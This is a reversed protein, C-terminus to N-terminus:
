ALHTSIGAPAFVAVDRWLDAVARVILAFLTLLVVVSLQIPTFAATPVLFALFLAYLLPAFWSRATPMTAAGYLWGALWVLAPALVTADYISLHPNVLTSALVLVATRVPLPANSRWVHIAKVIVFVSLAAWAATDWGAPLRNTVASISHLHGPKPEILDHFQPLTTMLTAYDQLVSRGLVAVVALAQAGVSVVAGALMRLERCVLVLPVLVMVFQPKLLLLGFAAGAWFRRRHELALWGLCFGLLPVVSTQGHLVLSWFPPFAAAAAVMLREDHLVLRFPRWALWLCAGYVLVIIAAWLLAATGYPLSAFPRFLLYAHPPYVSLYRETASEPVLEAQVRHLSEHDYLIRAATGADLQGLTYFHIFDAGKLPGFISRYGPGAFAIVCAVTWLVVAALTAHTRTENRTFQWWRLSHARTPVTGNATESAVLAAM